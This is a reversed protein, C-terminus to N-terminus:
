QSRSVQPRQHRIQNTPFVTLMTFCSIVCPAIRSGHTSAPSPHPIPILLHPTSAPPLPTRPHTCRESRWRQPAHLSCVQSTSLVRLDFSFPGVYKEAIAYMKAHLILHPVAPDVEQEPMALSFYDDAEEEMEHPTM